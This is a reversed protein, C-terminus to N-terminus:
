LIMLRYLNYLMVVVKDVIKRRRAAPGTVRPDSRQADARFEGNMSYQGRILSRSCSM